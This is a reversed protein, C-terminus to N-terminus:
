CVYTYSNVGNYLLKWPLSKNFEAKQFIEFGTLNM